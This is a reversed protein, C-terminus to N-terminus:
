SVMKGWTDESYYLIHRSFLNSIVITHRFIYVYMCLLIGNGTHTLVLLGVFIKKGISKLFFQETHPEVSSETQDWPRQEHALASPSLLPQDETFIVM